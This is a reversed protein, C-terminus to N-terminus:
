TARRILRWHPNALRAGHSQARPAGSVSHHDTAEISDWSCSRIGLEGGPPMISVTVANARAEPTM